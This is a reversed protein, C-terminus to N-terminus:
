PSTNRAGTITMLVGALTADMPNPAVVTLTDGGSFTTDSTAAFTGTTGEAAYTVTGFEVGNKKLSFVTEATAAAKASAQSEVLGAKFTVQTTFLFRGIEEASIAKGPDDIAIDYRDGGRPGRYQFPGAWTGATSTKRVYWEEDDEVFVTFGADEDDYADRGSLTSVFADFTTNISFAEWAGAVKFYLINSVQDFRFDNDRGDADDPVGVSVLGMGKGVLREILDGFGSALDSGRRLIVLTYDEGEPSPPSSPGPWPEVLEIELDQPHDQEDDSDPDSAVVAIVGGVVLLSGRRARTSWATEIGTVTTSGETVVIQGDTYIDPIM